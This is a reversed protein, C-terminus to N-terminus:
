LIDNFTAVNAIIKDNYYKYYLFKSSQSEKCSQKLKESCFCQMKRLSYNEPGLYQIKQLKFKCAGFIIKNCYRLGWINVRVGGYLFTALVGRPFKLPRGEAFNLTRPPINLVLFLDGHM